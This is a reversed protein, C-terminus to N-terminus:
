IEFPPPNMEAVRKRLAAAAAIGEGNITSFAWRLPKKSLMYFPHRHM